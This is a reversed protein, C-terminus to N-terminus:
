VYALAHGNHDKLWMPGFLVGDCNLAREHPTILGGPRFGCSVGRFLRTLESPDRLVEAVASGADGM